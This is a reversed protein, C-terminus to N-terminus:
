TNRNTMWETLSRLITYAKEDRCCSQLASRAKETFKDAQQLTEEKIGIQELHYVLDALDSESFEPKQWIMHFDPSRALGLLIPYTKKHTALDSTTSKGTATQEGWIGLYDDQIQFALGLNLGYEAFAALVDPDSSGLRAGLSLCTQLLSTTKGLIMQFYTEETVEPAQEFAIDLYQGQTLQLCTNQLLKACEAVIQVPFISELEWIKLMGITYLADGANIAQAIGVQKWLTPRHHRLESQDQIDDHILSFNHILEVASAAPIAKHWDGGSAQTALLVFLPRLRKGTVPKDGWGLHYELMQQLEPTQGHFSSAITRRLDAEVETRMEALIPFQAFIQQDSQSM